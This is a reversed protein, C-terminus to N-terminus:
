LIAIIAVVILMEILTFGSNKRFKERLGKM